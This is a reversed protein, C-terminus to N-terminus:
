GASAARRSRRAPRRRPARVPTLWGAARYWELTRQAGTRWDFQPDYGLERRARTIDFSRSKTFFAVRRRFIPPELHLPVCVAECMAGALWFPWVPLHLRPVPVNCLEAVTAVAENLTVADPGALIYTRGIAEERTAALLMGDVLDDIYIPHLKVEGSGLVPFRRRAVGAFLKFMRRDGPGYITAPRVVSLPVGLRSAADIAALEGELKSVQYVDGPAYPANEDGPQDGVDGHVGITSCHMVREVGARSALEVIVRPAEANVAMYESERHSAERFIAAVHFVTSVGAIAGELDTRSTM